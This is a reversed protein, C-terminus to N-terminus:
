LQKLQEYLEKLVNTQHSTNCFEFVWRLGKMQEESPKWQKQPRLSKLWHQVKERFEKSLIDRDGIRIESFLIDLNKVYDNLAEIIEKDEESWEQKAQVSNIKEIAIKLLVDANDKIYEKWGVEEGIWGRCIDLLEWEFETLNHKEDSIEKTLEEAEINNTKIIRDIKRLKKKEADWEYCANKMAMFLIEKQEKTAPVTNDPYDINVDIDYEEVYNSTKTLTFFANGLNNFLCIREYKIGNSHKLTGKYFLVDGAKADKITWLHIKDDSLFRSSTFDNGNTDIGVYYQKQVDLIQAIVDGRVIWDGEHFKPETKDTAPKSGGYLCDNVIENYEKSSIRLSEEPSKMEVIPKQEGQKELVEIIHKVPMSWKNTGWTAEENDEYYFKMGNILCKVVDDLESKCQSYQMNCNNWGDYYAKCYEESCNSLDVKHHYWNPESIEKESPKELWTIIGKKEKESVNDCVEKFYCILWKRIRESIKEDESKTEKLEPFILEILEADAVSDTTSYYIRAREIAEAYAKAMEEVSLEKM